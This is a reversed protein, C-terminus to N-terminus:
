CLHAGQPRLARNFIPAVVAHRARLGDLRHVLAMVVVRKRCHPERTSGGPPRMSSGTGFPSRRSGPRRGAPGRRNRHRRRGDRTRGRRPRYAAAAPRRRPTGSGDRAGPTRARRARASRRRDIATSSARMTAIGSADRRVQRTTLVPWSTFSGLATVSVSSSRRSSGSFRSFTAAKEM